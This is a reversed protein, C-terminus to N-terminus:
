ARGQPPDPASPVKIAKAVWGFRTAASPEPRLEGNVWDSNFFRGVGPSSSRVKIVRTRASTTLAVPPACRGSTQSLRTPSNANLDACHRGSRGDLRSVLNLSTMLRLVAFASPRSIRGLTRARLRVPAIRLHALGASM